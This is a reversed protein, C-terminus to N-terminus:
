ASIDALAISNNPKGSAGPCSNLFSLNRWVNNLEMIKPSVSMAVNKNTFGIERELIERSKLYNEARIAKNISLLTTPYLSLGASIITDKVQRVLQAYDAALSTTDLMQLMAFIDGLPLLDYENIMGKFFARNNESVCSHDLSSTNSNDM